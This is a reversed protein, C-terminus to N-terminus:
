ELEGTYDLMQKRSPITQIEKYPIQWKSIKKINISKIGNNILHDIDRIDLIFARKFSVFLVIVYSKVGNVQSYKMLSEFQYDTIQNFDFRDHETAKSEIAYFYPSRFVFFDCPNTSGIWGSTQDPIRYFLYGDEPRNLWERVKGEARKGVSESM